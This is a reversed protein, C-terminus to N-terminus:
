RKREAKLLSAAIRLAKLRNRALTAQASGKRLKKEAKELKGILSTVARLAETLEEKSYRKKTMRM